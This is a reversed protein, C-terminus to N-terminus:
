VDKYYDSIRYGKGLIADVKELEDPINISQPCKELCKNCRVCMSANGNPNERNLKKESGALQRYKRKITWRRFSKRELALNNLIAFNEPINVGSPCPMCYSCSTCSVPTKKRYVDALKRIIEKEDKDLMGPGSRDASACNEDVMEMTGMGSLVAAVEPKDWLFQLGWEVPSRRAKAERIIELAGAPPNALKGGKLPEMIVMAIGKEHGYKLGETGAQFCTDMYNHQIQAIDWDYFDIIKKFVPLTDHFSFGIHRILGREKAKEMKELLELNKVKEFLNNNLAHFLYIDIHDTQLKRLQKELYSDFDKRNMVIQIPLKTALHVKGRYGDKLARGLIKESEGMHYYWATDLYNIGLDIGHRILSISKEADAGTRNFKKAPLRMCGFGLASVEWDLSGMKRYKM